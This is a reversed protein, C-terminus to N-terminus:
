ARGREVWKKIDRKIFRRLGGIKVSPLQRDRLWHFVTTKDVEFIKCVDKVTLYKDM